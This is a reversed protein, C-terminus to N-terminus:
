GGGKEATPQVGNPKSVDSTVIDSLSQPGLNKLLAERPDGYLIANVVGRELEATPHQTLEWGPGPTENHLDIVPGIQQGKFDGSTLSYSGNVLHAEIKGRYIKWSGKIVIQIPQRGKETDSIQFASSWALPFRQTPSIKEGAEVEGQRYIDVICDLVTKSGQPEMIELAFLDSFTTISWVPDPVTPVISIQITPTCCYSKFLLLQPLDAPQSSYLRCCCIGLKSAKEIAHSNYGSYSYLVGKHAGSSRLEGFFADIDQENLKKHKRKCSIYVKIPFHQCVKAEIWVDRQRPHGTDIDPLKVNHRVLAQPDLACVFNSVAIEFQKWEPDKM